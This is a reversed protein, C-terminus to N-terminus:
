YSHQSYRGGCVHKIELADFIYLFKLKDSSRIREILHCCGGCKVEADRSFIRKKLVDGFFKCNFCCTDGSILCQQNDCESLNCVIVEKGESM